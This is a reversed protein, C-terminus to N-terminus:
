LGRFVIQRSNKPTICKWDHKYKPNTARPLVSHCKNIIPVEVVVHCNGLMIKYVIPIRVKSRTLTHHEKSNEAPYPVMLLCCQKVTKVIM